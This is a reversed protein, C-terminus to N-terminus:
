EAAISLKKSSINSPKPTPAISKEPLKPLITSSNFNEIIQIM